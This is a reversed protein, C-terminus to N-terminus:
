ALYSSDEKIKKKRFLRPGLFNICIGGIVLLAGVLKWNDLPEGLVLASSFMAVVPVLMTFPAVSSLPHQHILWSWLGYGFLTSLYTIYLVAGASIWTIASLSQWIAQPGEVALSLALLPPWAVLSGWVVLSLMNVKGLTKSIASGTGWSAAAAIILFFGPISVSGGINLGVYTIGSFSVIAGIIQWPKMKEHFILIGLLLSFFVHVQMMISALGPPVGMHMGIFFLAFQVAFMMLGYNVVKHFPIKPRKCFFVAPLSTLFIRLFALFIPPFGDLGLQIVVFNYGWVIVLVFIWFIHLPRM